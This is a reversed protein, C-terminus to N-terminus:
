KLTRNICQKGALINKIAKLIRKYGCDKTCYGDAGAELSNKLYHISDHMSLMLIKLKQNQPNARLQKLASIGDLKPMSVDLILMDPNKENVLDIAELGNKAEGVIEFLGKESSLWNCLIERFFVHDDAIVVTIPM